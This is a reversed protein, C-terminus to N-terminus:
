EDYYHYEKAILHRLETYDMYIFQHEKGTIGM